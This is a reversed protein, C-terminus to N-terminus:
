LLNEIKTPLIGIKAKTDKIVFNKIIQDKLSDARGFAQGYVTKKDTSESLWRRVRPKVNLRNEDNPPIDSMYEYHVYGTKRKTGKELLALGCTTLKGKGVTSLYKLIYLYVITNPIVYTDKSPITKSSDKFQNNLNIYVTLDVARNFFHRSNKDVGSNRNNASSQYKRFVSIPFIVVQSPDLGENQAIFNTLGRIFQSLKKGNERIKAENTGRVGVKKKKKQENTAQQSNKKPNEPEVALIETNLSYNFESANVGSLNSNEYDYMVYTEINALWSELGKNKTIVKLRKNDSKLTSLSKEKEASAYLLNNIEKQDECNPLDDKIEAPAPQEQQQAQDETPNVKESPPTISKREGSETSSYSKNVLLSSYKIADNVTGNKLSDSIDSRGFIDIQYINNPRPNWSYRYFKEVIQKLYNQVDDILAQSQLLSLDIFISRSDEVINSDFLLPPDYSQADQLSNVQNIFGIVENSSYLSIETLPFEDLNELFFKQYGVTTQDDGGVYKQKLEGSTNTLIIQNILNRTNLLQSLSNYVFVYDKPNKSNYTINSNVAYGEAKKESLLKCATINNMVQKASEYKKKEGELRQNKEKDIDLIIPGTFTRTNEFIIQVIQGVKVNKTTLAPIKQLDSSTLGDEPKLGSKAQQEDFRNYYTYLDPVHLLAVKYSKHESDSLGNIRELEHRNSLFLDSLAGEGSLVRTVVAYFRQKGTNIDPTLSERALHAYLDELTTQKNLISQADNKSPPQGQAVAKNTNFSSASTM